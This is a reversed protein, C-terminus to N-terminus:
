LYEVGTSNKKTHYNEYPFWTKMTKVVVRGLHHDWDEGTVRIDVPPAFGLSSPKYYKGDHKVAMPYDNAVPNWAEYGEVWSALICMAMVSKGIGNPAPALVVLNDRVLEPLWEQWTFPKLFEWLHGSVYDEKIKLQGAYQKKLKELNAIEKAIAKERNKKKLDTAPRDLIKIALDYVDKDKKRVQKKYNGRLLKGKLQTTM